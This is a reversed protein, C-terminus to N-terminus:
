YECKPSYEPKSLMKRAKEVAADKLDIWGIEESTIIQAFGNVYRLKEAGTEMIIVAEDDVIYKQLQQMFSDYSANMEDDSSAEGNPLYGLLGGYTGFGFVADGAKDKEEWLHISDETGEVSKMMKRFGEEDNVHFYNSRTTCYYNAM